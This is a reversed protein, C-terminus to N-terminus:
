PENQLGSSCRAGSALAVHQPTALGRSLRAHLEAFEAFAADHELLDRESPM